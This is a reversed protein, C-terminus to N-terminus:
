KLIDEQIASLMRSCRRVLESGSVEVAGARVALVRKSAALDYHPHVPHDQFWTFKVGISRALVHLETLNGDTMMHCWRGGRLPVRFLFDVYVTM